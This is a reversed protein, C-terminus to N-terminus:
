ESDLEAGPKIFKDFLKKANTKAWKNQSESYKVRTYIPSVIQSYTMKEYRMTNPTEAGLEAIHLLMHVKYTKLQMIFQILHENDSEIMFSTFNKFCEANDLLLDLSVVSATRTAHLADDHVADVKAKSISGATSACLGM